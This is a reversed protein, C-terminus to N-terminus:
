PEFGSRFLVESRNIVDLPQLTLLQYSADASTFSLLINFSEDLSFDNDVVGMVTVTQPEDWSDVMFTLSSRDIIGVTEDTSQLNLTVTDIPQSALAFQIDATLGTEGVTIVGAPSVTLGPADDDLNVVPITDPQLQDYLEDDSTVSVLINYAVDGDAVNDDLGVLLVSQPTQWNAFDFILSNPEPIGEGPQDSQLVLSVPSFPESELVVDFTSTGGGETTTQQSAGIFTIGSEDDDVNVGQIEAPVIGALDADSSITPGLILAWAQNGDDLDDDVGMIEVSQPQDWNEPTFTLNQSGVEIEDSLSNIPIDVNATPQRALSINTTALGGSESTSLADIDSIDVITEFAGIDCLSDRIVGRQDFIVADGDTYLPNGTESIFVCDSTPIQDRAISSQRLALPQRGGLEVVGADLPLGATGVLDQNVNPAGGPFGIVCGDNAGLLNFGDSILGDGNCDLGNAATNGSVISNKITTTRSTGGFASIGGGDGVGSNDADAINATVSVNTVSSSLLALGGGSGGARNGFVASNALSVHTGVIGGGSATLAENYSIISDVITTASSASDDQTLSLGGGVSFAQNETVIIRELNTFGFTHNVSIAGGFRALNRAFLSDTILINTDGTPPNNESFIAGGGLSAENGFFEGDSINVSGTAIAIAGGNSLRSMGDGLAQNDQFRVNRVSLVGGEVLVAGGQRILASSNRNTAGNQVTLNELTLNAVSNRLHFLRDLRQGDIITEGIGEGVLTITSIIDLDGVQNADENREGLIFYTYAPLEIRYEIPSGTGSDSGECDLGSAQGANAVEIAERLSCGTENPDDSVPDVSITRLTQAHVTGSSVMAMLMLLCCQIIFSVVKLPTFRPFVLLLNSQM